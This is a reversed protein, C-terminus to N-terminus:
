RGRKGHNGRTAELAERYVDAYAHAMRAASFQHAWRPGEVLARTRAEPDALMDHLARALADPDTPTVQIAVPGGAEPLSSVNSTVTPVGCALAEVVPFGFGEYVSPYMFLEACSYWLPQDEPLVYGAFTISGELNLARVREFITQYYWGKGGAIILPPADPQLTRLRAYAEVLTPLNKRPELTGLFLLYREPLDLRARFAAREALDTIPRFHDAIAPYIVRIREAPVAFHDILDQKTNASVAVVRTAHRASRRTFVRQYMRRTPRFYQPYRVFALDHVTVVSPCPLRLPLVNVPSHLVDARIEKLASPLSFQEWMVRRAPQSTSTSAPVIHLDQAAGLPDAAVAPAEAPNVFATYRQDGHLAALGSLLTYTYRSLGANRSSRAFSVLQANIAVHLRNTDM